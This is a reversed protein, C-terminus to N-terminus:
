LSLHKEFSFWVRKKYKKKENLRKSFKEINCNAVCFREILGYTFFIITIKKIDHIVM